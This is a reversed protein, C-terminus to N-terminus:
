SYLAVKTYRYYFLEGQLYGLLTSVHLPTNRNIIFSEEHM